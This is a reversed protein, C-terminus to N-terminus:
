PPVGRQDTVTTNYLVWVGYVPRPVLARVGGNVSPPPVGTVGMPEKDHGNYLVSDTSLGHCWRGCVETSPHHRVGTFRMPEKDWVGDVPRSVLARVGGKASPPSVGTFELPDKDRGNYLVMGNVPRPVM